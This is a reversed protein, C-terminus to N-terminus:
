REISEFARKSKSIMKKINLLGNRMRGLVSNVNSHTLQAIDKFKLNAYHRLVIVERQALPLRDIMKRVREDREGNVIKQEISQENSSIFEFIDINNNTVIKTTRNIKRFYDMCLNHAIRIVWPLFKGRDRYLGKRLNDIVRIFVDQFIDEALYKDKVLLFISTFIKEKYRNVLLELAIVNGASYQILLDQESLYFLNKM